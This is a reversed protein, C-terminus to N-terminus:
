RRVLSQSPVFSESTTDANDWERGLQNFYKKSWEDGINLTRPDSHAYGELLRSLADLQLIPAQNQTICESITNVISKATDSAEHLANGAKDVKFAVKKIELSWLM